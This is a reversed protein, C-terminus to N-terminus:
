FPNGKSGTTMPKAIHAATVVSRSIEEDAPLGDGQGYDELRTQVWAEMAAASGPRYGVNRADDSSDQRFRAVVNAQFDGARPSDGPFEVLGEM